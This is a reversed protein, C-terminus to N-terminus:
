VSSPGLDGGPAQGCASLATTGTPAWRQGAAATFVM